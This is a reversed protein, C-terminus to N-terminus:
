KTQKIGRLNAGITLDYMDLRSPIITVIRYKNTGLVSGIDSYLVKEILYDDVIEWTGKIKFHKPINLYKGKINTKIYTMDKNYQATYSMEHELLQAHWESIDWIGIIKDKFNYDNVNKHLNVSSCGLLVPVGLFFWLCLRLIRKNM